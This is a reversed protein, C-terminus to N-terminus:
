FQYFLGAFFTDVQRDDVIPSNSITSSLYEREIMGVLNWHPSFAHRAAFRIFGNTGSGGEYFDRGFFAEDERVGYYYSVLNSSKWELGLTLTFENTRTYWPHSWSLWAEQGDHTSSVDSLVQAQIDGWPSIYLFEIGGNLAFDRDALETNLNAYAPDLPPAFGFDTTDTSSANRDASSTTTVVEGERTVPPGETTPGISSFGLQRELMSDLGFTRGTLYNYFNRENNFTAVLSFSYNRREALLYGFDGNDFFFREGYWSFDVVTNIDISEGSILPNSREGYGLAIGLNWSREDEQALAATSCGLYLVTQLLVSGIFLTDSHRKYSHKM